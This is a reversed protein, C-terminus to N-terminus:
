TQYATYHIIRYVAADQGVTHITIALTMPVGSGLQLPVDLAIGLPNPPATVTLTWHNWEYGPAGDTRFIFTLTGNAMPVSASANPPVMLSGSILAPHGNIQLGSM